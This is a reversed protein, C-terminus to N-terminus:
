PSPPPSIWAYEVGEDFRREAALYSNNPPPNSSIIEPINGIMHIHPSRSILHARIQDATRPINHDEVIENFLREAASYSNNPPPNRAVIEPIDGILHRLYAPAIYNLHLRIECESRPINPDDQYQMIRENLM